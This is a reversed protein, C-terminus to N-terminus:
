AINPFLRNKANLMTFSVSLVSLLGHTQSSTNNVLTGSYMYEGPIMFIYFAKMKARTYRKFPAVRCLM